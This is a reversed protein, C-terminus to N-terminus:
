RPDGSGQQRIRLSGRVASLTPNAWTTTAYLIPRVEVVQPQHRYAGRPVRAPKVGNFGSGLAAFILATSFYFPLIAISEIPMRTMEYLLLSIWFVLPLTPRTVFKRILFFAGIVLCAICIVAGAWGMTVLIEVLTNHFTFGSRNTIGGFQWLGEADVNGQLWFANYGMGLAPKEKILESARYWIYTRGTFTADKGFASAGVEIVTQILWKHTVAAALLVVTVTATLWGRVAKGAWVLPALTLMPLAGMMLGLLAGASRAALVVYFDLVVALGAVGMWFWSRSRFAIIGVALSVILGTATIDALLNKSYTLGSFATGGNAGVAVRGGLAVSAVVYILFALALSKLVAEQNRATAILLGIAVTIGFEIAYKLTEGPAESWVTTVLAYIPVSLLFLRPILVQILQRRRAFVYLPTLGALAAASLSGANAAFLMPIILAFTFVADIDLRLRGIRIENYSPAAAETQETEARERAAKQAELIMRRQQRWSLAGPAPIEGGRIRRPRASGRFSDWSATM